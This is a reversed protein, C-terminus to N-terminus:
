NITDTVIDVLDTLHVPKQICKSVYDNEQLEKILAHDLEFASLLIIKVGNYEKIKRAVTDGFMDGLRYDLVLLHIKNGRNKEEIFKDICGEGSSVLIVNYKSKLATGFLGLLDPEDDCVMVMKKIAYAPRSSTGYKM